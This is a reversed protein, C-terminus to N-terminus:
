TERLALTVPLVRQEEVPVRDPDLRALLTAALLRGGGIWDQRVSTLGPTQAAAAPTDDYGVVGIDHGPELGAERIAQMAGIAVLDSGGFVGDCRAGSALVEAMALRGSESNFDCSRTDVCAASTGELRAVFGDRRDALEAHSTDGLFVLHQRGQDLLHGAALAGGLRNDSGIVVAGMEAEVGDDAGWVALPLNLQTLARVTHHDSGQGLVIVGSTDHTEASMRPDSTTLVVAFGAAACEQMIGGLLALPYPDYLPRDDRAAMDVIVSIRRRQQLRLDRAALNVRYGMSAATETIRQRVEAKVLDSGRLARSVTIKSVGAANAVDSMTARRSLDPTPKRDM